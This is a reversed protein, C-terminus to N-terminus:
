AMTVRGRRVPLVPAASRLSHVEPLEFKRWISVLDLGTLGAVNRAFRAARIMRFMARLVGIATGPVRVIM